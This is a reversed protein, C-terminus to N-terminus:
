SATPQNTAAAAEVEKKQKEEAEKRLTLIKEKFVDLMTISDDWPSNLPVLYQYKFDGKIAEISVAGFHGIQM